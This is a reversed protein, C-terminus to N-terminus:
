TKNQRKVLGLSNRAALESKSNEVITLASDIDFCKILGFLCYRTARGDKQSSKTPVGAVALLEEPTDYFLEFSYNIDDETHFKFEISLDCFVFKAETIYGVKALVDGAFKNFNEEIENPPNQVTRSSSNAFGLDM